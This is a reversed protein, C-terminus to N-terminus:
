SLKKGLIRSPAIGFHRKFQKSFRSQDTCGALLSIEAITYKGQHLLEKAKEMRQQLVYQYPAIGLSQKFLRCFHYQSMNAVVALEALHLPRDLHNHIYDVVPQLRQSSLREALPQSKPRLTSYKRLLHIILVQMLSETYLSEGLGSGDLEAQFLDAIAQIQPDRAGITNLLEIRSTDVGNVEEAIQNFLRPEIVFMLSEDTSDWAWLGSTQASCIWFEGKLQSKESEQEGIRTIKQRNGESLLLCLVHHECGLFELENPKSVHQDLTLGPLQLTRRESIWPEKM